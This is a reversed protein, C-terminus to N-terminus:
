HVRYPLLVNFISFLIITRVITTAHIISSNLTPQRAWASVRRCSTMSLSESKVMLLSETNSCCSRAGSSVMTFLSAPRSVPCSNVGSLMGPLRCFRSQFVQTGLGCRAM